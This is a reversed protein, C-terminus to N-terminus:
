PHRKEPAGDAAARQRELGQSTTLPPRKPPMLRARRGAGGIRFARRGWCSAAAMLKATEPSRWAEGLTVEFGLALAQNILKPLLTAFLRQQESLTM